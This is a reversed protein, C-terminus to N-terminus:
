AAKEYDEWAERVENWLDYEDFFDMWRDREEKELELANPIRSDDELAGMLYDLDDQFNQISIPDDPDITGKDEAYEQLDDFLAM